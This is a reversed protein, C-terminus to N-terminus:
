LDSKMIKRTAQIYPRRAGPVQINALEHLGADVTFSLVKGTVKHANPGMVQYVIVQDGAELQQGRGDIPGDPCHPACVVYLPDDHLAEWLPADNGCRACQVGQAYQGMVDIAIAAHIQQENIFEHLARSVIGTLDTGAEEAMGQLVSKLRDPININLQVLKEPHPTM